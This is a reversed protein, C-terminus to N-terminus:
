RNVQFKNTELVKGSPTRVQFVYIGSYFDTVQFSVRQSNAPINAVQRGLFSFVQITTGKPPEEKFEFTINNVAPNPFFRVTNKTEKQDPQQWPKQAVAALSGLWFCFFITALRILSSFIQHLIFIIELFSAFQKFFDPGM